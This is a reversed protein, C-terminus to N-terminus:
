QLRQFIIFGVHYETRAHRCAAIREGAAHREILEDAVFNQGPKLIVDDTHIQRFEMGTVPEVTAFRELAHWKQEVGVFPM